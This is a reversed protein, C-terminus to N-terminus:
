AVSRQFYKSGQDGDQGFKYKRVSGHRNKCVWFQTTEHSNVKIYDIGRKPQM